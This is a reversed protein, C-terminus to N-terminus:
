LQRVFQFVQTRLRRDRAGRPAFPKRVTQAERRLPLPEVWAVCFSIQAHVLPVFKPEKAAVFCGAMGENQPRRRIDSDVYETRRAIAPSSRCVERSARASRSFEM